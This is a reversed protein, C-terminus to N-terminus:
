SGMRSWTGDPLLLYVGDGSGDGADTFDVINGTQWNAATPTEADAREEGVGNVLTRTGADVTVTSPINELRVDTANSVDINPTAATVDRIVQDAANSWIGQGGSHFAGGSVVEGGGSLQLGQEGDPAVDVYCNDFEVNERLCLIGDSGTSGVVRVSDVTVRETPTAGHEGDIWLGRSGNDVRVFCDRITATGAFRGLRIGPNLNGATRAQMDVFCNEVLINQGPDAGVCFIGRMPGSDDFDPDYDADTYAYHGVIRGHTDVRGNSVGCNFCTNNILHTGMESARGYIANNPWNGVLCNKVVVKGSNGERYAGIGASDVGLNAATFEAGDTAVISDAIIVANRNATQLEMFDHSGPGDFRGDQECAFIRARGSTNCVISTAGTDPATTDFVFGGFVFDGVTKADAASFFRQEAFTSTSDGDWVFRATKQMPHGESVLGLDDFGDVEVTSGLYYTGKPFVLLRDDALLSEIDASVDTSGTNDIGRETVDIATADAPSCGFLEVHSVEHVKGDATEESRFTRVDVTGCSLTLTELTGESVHFIQCFEGTKLAVHTAEFFDLAAIAVSVARGDSAIAICGSPDAAPNCGCTLGTDLSDREYKHEFACSELAPQDRCTSGQARADASM